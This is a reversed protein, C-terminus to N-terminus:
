FDSVALVHFTLFIVIVEYVCSGIYRICVSSESKKSVYFRTPMTPTTVLSNAPHGLLRPETVALTLPEKEVLRGSRYQPGAVV